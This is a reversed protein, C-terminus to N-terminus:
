LCESFVQILSMARLPFVTSMFAVIHLKYWKFRDGPEKIQRMAHYYESKKEWYPSLLLDIEIGNHKFQVAM